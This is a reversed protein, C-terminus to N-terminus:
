INTTSRCLHEFKYRNDKLYQPWESEDLTFTFPRGLYDKGDRVRVRLADQVAKTNYSEATYSDNLKRRVEKLGGMSTFHWGGYYVTPWASTRLHNLCAMKIHIYPSVIPGWFEESSRNNLYYAYVKLKLKFPAHAMKFAMKPDWIEDVDGIIVTDNDNLNLLAKKISEKQLFERKWHKAGLTNPSQEAMAKEEATYKEDIVFYSIKPWFEKLYKEEQSFYLPKKKGSFTTKAEVIIFKDVHEYLMGLRLKLIDLEGNYTFVDYIM